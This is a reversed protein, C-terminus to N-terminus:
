EHMHVGGGEAWTCVCACVRVQTHEGSSDHAKLTIRFQPLLPVTGCMDEQLAQSLPAAPSPPPTWGQPVMHLMAAAPQAPLTAVSAEPAMKARGGGNHHTGPSSDAGTAAGAACPGAKAGGAAAAASGPLLLAPRAGRHGPANLRATHTKHTTHPTHTHAQAWTDTHAHTQTHTHALM